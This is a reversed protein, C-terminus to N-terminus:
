DFLLCLLKQRDDETYWLHALTRRTDAPIASSAAEAVPDRKGSLGVMATRNGTGASDPIYIQRVQEVAQPTLRVEYEM